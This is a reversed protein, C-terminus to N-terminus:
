RSSIKLKEALGGEGMEDEGMRMSNDEAEDGNGRNGSNCGGPFLRIRILGTVQRKCAYM